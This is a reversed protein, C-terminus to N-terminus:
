HFYHVVSHTFTIGSLLYRSVTEHAPKFLHQNDQLGDNGWLEASKRCSSAGDSSFLSEVMAHHPLSCLKKWGFKPWRNVVQRLVGHILPNASFQYNLDESGTCQHYTSPKRLYDRDRVQIKEFSPTFARDFVYLQRQRLRRFSANCKECCAIPKVGLDPAATWQWWNPVNHTCNLSVILKRDDQKLFDFALLASILPANLDWM